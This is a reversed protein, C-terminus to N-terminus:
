EDTETPPESPWLKDTSKTEFVKPGIGITRQAQRIERVYEVIRYRVGKAYAHVESPVTSLDTPMPERYQIVNTDSLFIHCRIAKADGVRWDGGLYQSLMFLAKTRAKFPLEIWLYIIPQIDDTM